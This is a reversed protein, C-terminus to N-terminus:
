EGQARDFPKSMASRPRPAEDRRFQGYDRLVTAIRLRYDVFLASRGEQQAGRHREHRRWRAVAEEDTWTSLSLLRNPDTLSQYRVVEVFGDHQALDAVLSAAIEMYRAAAGPALEVEFLVVIM